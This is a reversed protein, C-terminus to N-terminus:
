STGSVDVALWLGSHKYNLDHNPSHQPAGCSSPLYDGHFSTGLTPLYTNFWVAAVTPPSKSCASEKPM